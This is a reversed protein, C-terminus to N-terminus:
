PFVQYYSRSLQAIKVLLYSSRVPIGAIDIQSHTLTITTESNM